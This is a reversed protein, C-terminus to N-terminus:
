GSRTEEADLGMEEGGGQVLGEAGRGMGRGGSGTPERRTGVRGRSGTRGGGDGGNRRLAVPEEQDYRCLLPDDSPPLGSGRDVELVALFHFGDEYEEGRDGPLTQAGLLPQVESDRGDGAGMTQSITQEM